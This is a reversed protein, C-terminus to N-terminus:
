VLRILHTLQGSKQINEIVIEFSRMIYQEIEIQQVNLNKVDDALLEITLAYAKTLMENIATSYLDYLDANQLRTISEPILSNLQADISSLTVRENEMADLSQGFFQDILGKAYQRPVSPTIFEFIDKLVENSPSVPYLQIETRDQSIDSIYLKYGDESGVENRFFNAVMAYRGPALGTRNAIYTMDLNLIEYPGTQDIVTTLSLADQTPGLNLHGAFSGDPNYIWLEVVDRDNTGFIIQRTDSRILKEDRAFLRSPRQVSSPVLPTPYNLQNAM